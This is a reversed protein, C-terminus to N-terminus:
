PEEDEDPKTAPTLTVQVDERGPRETVKVHDLKQLQYMKRANLTARLPVQMGPVLDNITLTDTLIISSNDPVRVEIPAPSRGSLNRRAQSNLEVATPANTAEENYATFIKTWPGYFDLNDSNVASGYVGEQGMVYASQSHDAGYETIKVDNFFNAETWQGLKGLSRSVDWLIIQRGVTVWDIGSQRAVAALHQGVTMQYPITHASTGAENAFHRVDLHPLVNIPPTMSEWAPVAITAGYQDLQTRGHTLEYAIIEGLRTTVETSGTGTFSNDWDQTLPTAFLYESVDKAAIEAYTGHLGVRHIPGEWVRERGRFIVLEHRHSRIAGLLRAQGSCADGEIRVSGETTSDRSREWQVASLDILPGIRKKGGRDFIAATHNSVCAGGFKSEPM